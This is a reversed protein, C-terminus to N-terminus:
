FPVEVRPQTTARWGAADNETAIGQAIALVSAAEQLMGKDTLMDAAEYLLGAVHNMQEPRDLLQNLKVLMGPGLTIADKALGRDIAADLYVRVDDAAGPVGNDAQIQRLRAKQLLRRVDATAGTKIRQLRDIKSQIQQQRSPELPIAM